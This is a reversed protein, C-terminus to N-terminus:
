ASIWATAQKCDILRAPSMGRRVLLADQVVKGAERYKEAVAGNSLDNLEQHDEVDM